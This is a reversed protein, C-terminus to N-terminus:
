KKMRDRILAAIRRTEPTEIREVIQLIAIREAAATNKGAAELRNVFKDVSSMMQHQMGDIFGREYDPGQDLRPKASIQNEKDSVQIRWEKQSSQRGLMPRLDM